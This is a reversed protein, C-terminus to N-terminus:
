GAARLRAVLAPDSDVLVVAVGCRACLVAALGRGTRGAGLIVAGVGGASPTGAPTAHPSPSPAAPTPTASM